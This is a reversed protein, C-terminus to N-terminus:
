KERRGGPPQGNKALAFLCKRALWGVGFCMFFGIPEASNKLRNRHHPDYFQPSRRAFLFAGGNYM